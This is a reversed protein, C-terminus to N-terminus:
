TKAKRKGEHVSDQYCTGSTAATSIAMEDHYGREQELKCKMPELPCQCPTMTLAHSLTQQTKCINLELLCCTRSKTVTALHHSHGGEVQVEEIRTPVAVPHDDPCSQIHTIDDGEQRNIEMNKDPDDPSPHHGAYDVFGGHNSQKPEPDVDAVRVTCKSCSALVVTSIFDKLKKFEDSVYQMIKLKMTRLRIEILSRQDLLMGQVDDNSDGSDHDESDEGEVEESDDAGSEEEEGSTGSGEQAEDSTKDESTGEESSHLVVTGPLTMWCLSLVIM